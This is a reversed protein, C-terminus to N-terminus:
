NSVEVKKKKKKLYKLNSTQNKRIEYPTKKKRLSKYSVKNLIHFLIYPKVRYITKYIQILWCLM